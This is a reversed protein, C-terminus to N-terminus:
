EDAAKLEEYIAAMARERFRENGYSRFREPAAAVAEARTKGAKIAAGIAERCREFYEIQGRLGDVNTLEGHGPVVITDADCLEITKRLSAIWGLTTAGADRDIFPHLRHFLLDGAHVVNLAPAHVVLDNDTHGPGFHHLRVSAMGPAELTKDTAFTETPAFMEPTLDAARQHYANLDAIVADSPRPEMGGAAAVAEKAQSIYRNTQALVRPKAREQAIVPAVGAFAHNGGTHDAHHHTNVVWRVAAGAAEAERRLTAGFPANKCDVLTTGEKGILLLTNGGQGIGVRVGPRPSKWDFFSEAARSRGAFGFAPRLAMGAAGLVATGVFRRRTLRM